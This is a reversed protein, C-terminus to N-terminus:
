MFMDYFVYVGKNVQKDNGTLINVDSNYVSIVVLFSPLAQRLATAPRM